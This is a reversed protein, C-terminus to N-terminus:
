NETPHDIHDIVLVEVPGKTPVLKLGLQEQIATFLNPADSPETDGPRDLAYRLKFDYAGTLGTHNVIDHGAVTPDTILMPARALLDLSANTATLETTPGRNVTTISPAEDPTAPPLKPGGKALVLEYEPLQRTEFHVKLHFREALLQQEMLQLRRHQERGPLDKLAAFTADDLKANVQYRQSQDGAWDPANLIRTGEAGIPINYAMAILLSAQATMSMRDSLQPATGIPMVKFTRQSIVQEGNAPPPPPPDWRRITAVEFSPPTGEEPHLIQAHIIATATLTLMCAGGILRLSTM